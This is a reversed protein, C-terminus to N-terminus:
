PESEPEPEPELPGTAAPLLGATRSCRRGRPRAIMELLADRLTALMEVQEALLALLESYRAPTETPAELEGLQALEETSIEVVGIHL